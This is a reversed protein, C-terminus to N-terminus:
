STISQVLIVIDLINVDSNSDMDSLCQQADTFDAGNLLYNIIGVVDLIDVFGDLNADGQTDTDCSGCFPLNNGDWEGSCDQTIQDGNSALITSGSDATQTAIDLSSCYSRMLVVNQVDQESVWYSETETFTFGDDSDTNFFLSAFFISTNNYTNNSVTGTSIGLTIGVTLNSFTNGSISANDTFLGNIGISTLDQNPIINDSLVVGNIDRITNNTITINQTIEGLSIGTGSIDYIENNDITIDSPPNPPIENGWAIIGYSLPSENSSNALGMGHIVNNNININTSGPNVAIGSTTNDDGIIEFGSVTINNGIISIANSQNSADIIVGTQGELTIANEITFSETYTAPTVSIYDNAAANQIAETITSHETGQTTNFVQSCAINLILITILIKMKM